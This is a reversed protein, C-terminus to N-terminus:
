INSNSIVLMLVPVPVYKELDNETANKTVLIGQEPTQTGTQSSGTPRSVLEPSAIPTLTSELSPSPTSNQKARDQAAHLSSELYSIKQHLVDIKSASSLEQHRLQEVLVANEASITKLAATATSASKQEEILKEQLRRAEMQHKLMSSTHNATSLAHQELLRQSFSVLLSGVDLIGETWTHPDMPALNDEATNRPTLDMTLVPNLAPNYDPSDMLAVADRLTRRIREISSGLTSPVDYASLDM